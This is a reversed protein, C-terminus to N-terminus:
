GEDKRKDIRKLKEIKQHIDISYKISEDPLFLLQPLTKLRVKKGLIVRIFGRMRDLIQKAKTYKKEDLLSFYVKSEQLDSTTIVRTISLFDMEPDDIEKQVINMIQRQLEKNVKEMRLSM